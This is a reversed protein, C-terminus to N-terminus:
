TWDERAGEDVAVLVIAIPLLEAGPRTDEKCSQKITPVWRNWNRWDCFRDRNDTYGIRMVGPRGDIISVDEDM